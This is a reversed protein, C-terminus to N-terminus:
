RRSATPTSTPPTLTPNEQWASPPTGELVTGYNCFPYADGAGTAGGTTSGGSPTTGTTGTTGGARTAGGTGVAGGTGSGCAGLSLGLMACAMSHLSHRIM